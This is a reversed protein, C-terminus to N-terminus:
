SFSVTHSLAPWIGHVFISLQGLGVGAHPSDRHASLSVSSFLYGEGVQQRVTITPRYDTSKQQPIIGMLRM